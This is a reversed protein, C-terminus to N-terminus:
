AQHDGSSPVEAISLDEQASTAAFAMAARVDDETLTPFDALIEAITAGRCSEGLGNATVRTGRIAPESGYLM